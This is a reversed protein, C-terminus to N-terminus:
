AKQNLITNGVCAQVYFNSFFTKLSNLFRQIQGKQSAM